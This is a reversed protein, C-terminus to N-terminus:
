KRNRRCFIFLCVFMFAKITLSVDPTLVIKFLIDGKSLM